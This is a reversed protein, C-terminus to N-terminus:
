PFEIKKKTDIPKKKVVKSIKESDATHIVLLDHDM